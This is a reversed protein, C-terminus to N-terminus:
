SAARRAREGYMMGIALWLFAQEPAPTLSGDAIAMVLFALLATSAGQFFGRMTPTLDASGSLARLGKWVHFFYACVLVLGILGMDLITRLYANHPHTVLLSRGSRVADSWLMAGIGNGYLPSRLLDPVLPAWIGDIRGASIANAGMGFGYTARVYVADPLFYLAALVVTAGVLLSGIHRRSILFLVCAVAFGVFASRSFTLVLAAVVLAISALLVLKVGYDKTEAWMFLLLAYAIVYMRGLENAHLGLPSLFEREQDSALQGFNAGSVIFYAIAMLSMIWVSAVIPGLLKEPRQMRAVAAGVLLGFAVLLLPKAVMDRVYGLVDNFKVYETMAFYLAIEGTHRCGLAGAIVFPVIYLWLLPRPVFGAMGKHLLVHLLYSGLTGAVLLNVPNLGTVGGIQHPWITSLSIPMLVILLVVGIRFDLVILVCAFLALGVILANWEALVVAFAWCVCLLVIGATTCLKLALHSEPARGIVGREWANMATM